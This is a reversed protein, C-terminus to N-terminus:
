PLTLVRGAGLEVFDAGYAARFMAIATDGTCHTPAVKRVGLAQLSAIIEDVQPETMELLHFGGAVLLLESAGSLELAREVMPVIGPHACGTILVPGEATALLLGHESISTGMEGTSYAGTTLVVPDSVLVLTAGATTVVARTPGLFGTTMYVPVASNRELFAALGATHDTHDHSLMVLGVDVAELALTDMNALFLAPDAGTDLLITSDYGTIWCAFGWMATLRPDYV